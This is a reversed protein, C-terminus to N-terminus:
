MEHNRSMGVAVLLWAVSLCAFGFFMPVLSESAGLAIRRFSDGSFEETVGIFRLVNVYGVVGGCLAAFLGALSYPRMLALRRETPRIAYISAMVLPALDILLTLLAFIGVHRLLEM